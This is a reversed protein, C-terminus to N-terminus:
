RAYPGPTALWADYEARDGALLGAADPRNRADPGAALYRPQEAPGVVDRWDIAALLAYRELLEVDGAALKIAALRVRGDEVTALAARARELDDPAFHEVLKREALDDPAVTM